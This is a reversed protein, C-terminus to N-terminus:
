KKNKKALQQARRRERKAKQIARDMLADFAHGDEETEGIPKPEEFALNDEGLEEELDKRSISSRLRKETKERRWSNRM